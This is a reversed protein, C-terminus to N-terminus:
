LMGKEKIEIYQKMTAKILDDPPVDLVLAGERKMDRVLVDRRQKIDDITASIMSKELLDGKPRVRGELITSIDPDRVMLCLPLHRYTSLFKLSDLLTQAYRHKSIDTAFELSIDSIVVVLMRRKHRVILFKFAKDFNTKGKPYLESFYHMMQHFSSKAKRPPLYKIIDSGFAVLGINDNMKEALYALMLSAKMSYDFKTKGLPGGRMHGGCDLLIMITQNKEEEYEKVIPKGSRATAPWNIKKFEDGKVYERLEAFDTGIGKIKSKHIGLTKATSKKSSFEFKLVHDINTMVKIEQVVKLETKFQFYGRSGYTHLKLKGFEFKGRRTSKVKYIFSANQYPKVSMLKRNTTGSTLVFSEPLQDTIEVYKFHHSSENNIILQVSIEKGEFIKSNEVVRDISVKKLEHRLNLSWFYGVYPLLHLFFGFGILIVNGRFLGLILFISGLFIMKTSKSTIIM